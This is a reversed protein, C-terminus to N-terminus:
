PQHDAPADLARAAAARAASPEYGRRVLFSVLRRYATESPLSSLRAARRSAVRDLREGDDGGVEALAEEIARRDVGRAALAAGVARSGQLRRTVAQEAFQAAFRADDVLGVEQLRRLEEAVEDPEFGARLLRAELERRSRARVSLLRLAREHCSLRAGGV